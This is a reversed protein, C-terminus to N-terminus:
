ELEPRVSRATIKMVDCHVGPAYVSVPFSIRLKPGAADWASHRICVPVVSAQNEYIVEHPPKSVTEALHQSGYQRM